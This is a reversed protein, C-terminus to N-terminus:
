AVPRPQWEGAPPSWTSRIPMEGIVPDIFQSVARLVEALSEPLGDVVDPRRRWAAWRAQAIAPYEPLLAAIPALAAGRHAAVSDLSQALEPSDFAHRTSLTLLDAWDRWRTNAAGRQMATVAKEAVLAALPYGRLTVDGTLLGPVTIRQPAPYVPDGVNVDVGIRVQMTAMAYTLKVRIGSYEDGDRIVESAVSDADLVLGDPLDIRAISAIKAQIIARDSDLELALLDADRTPRRAGFAALLVGGKLVFAERDDSAALRRLFGELAYLVALQEFGRGKSRALSQLALHQEGGPQSRSVKV